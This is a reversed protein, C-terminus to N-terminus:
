NRKLKDLTERSLETRDLAGPSLAIAAKGAENSLHPESLQRRLERDLPCRYHTVRHQHTRHRVARPAKRHRNGARNRAALHLQETPLAAAPNATLQHTLQQPAEAGRKKRQHLPAIARM